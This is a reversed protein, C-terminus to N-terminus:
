EEIAEMSRQKSTDASQLLYKDAMHGLDQVSHEAEIGLMGHVM